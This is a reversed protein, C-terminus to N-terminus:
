AVGAYRPEERHGPEQGKNDPRHDRGCIRGFGLCRREDHIGIRALNEVRALGVFIAVRGGEGFHHREIKEELLQFRAVGSQFGANGHRRAAGAHRRRLESQAGTLRDADLICNEGQDRARCVVDRRCRTGKDGAGLIIEGDEHCLFGVCQAHRMGGVFIGGSKGVPCLFCRRAVLGRKCYANPLIERVIIVIEAGLIKGPPFRTDAVVIAQQATVLACGTQLGAVGVCRPEVECRRHFAVVFKQDAHDHAAALGLCTIRM